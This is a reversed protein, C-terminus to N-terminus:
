RMRGELEDATMRALEAYDIKAAVARAVTDDDIFGQEPEVAEALETIIEDVVDEALIREEGLLSRLAAARSDAGIGDAYDDFRDVLDNPLTVTTHGDPPM